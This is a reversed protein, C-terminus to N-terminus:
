NSDQREISRPRQVATHRFFVNLSLVPLFLDLIQMGQQLRNQFVGVTDDNILFLDHLDGLHETAVAHSIRINQPAGHALLIGLLHGGLSLPKHSPSLRFFDRLLLGGLDEVLHLGKGAVTEVFRVRSGVRQHGILGSIELSM